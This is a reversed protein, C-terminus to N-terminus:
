WPVVCAKGTHKEALEQVKLIREAQIQYLTKESPLGVNYMGKPYPVNLRTGQGGALLLVAVKNASITELGANRWEQLLEASASAVSDSASPPIPELLKDKEGSNGSDKTSLEFVQKIRELDLGCLEDLFAKKESDAVRDYHELLHCQEFKALLTRLEDLDM